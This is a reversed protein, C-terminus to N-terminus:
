KGGGGSFLFLALGGLILLVGPSLFSAPAAVVPTSVVAAMTGPSVAYVGVTGPVCQNQSADMEYGSPCACPTYGTLNVNLPCAPTGPPIVGICNGSGQPDCVTGPPCVILDGTLQDTCTAAQGMGRRSTTAMTV